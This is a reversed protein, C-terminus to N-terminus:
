STAAEARRRLDTTFVEDIRVSRHERDSAISAEVMALTWINDDASTEAVKGHVVADRFQNLLSVTGAKPYPLEDGKPVGVLKSPKFFRRGRPRWWVRKRDTWIDGNEGEVWLGYEYRNAIMTGAYQIPLGDGLTILAEAAGGKDYSSGPPNYSRAFMSVPQSRFLFRFSDFHHVAIEALFPHEAQKVWPGQTHSPQDRRDICVASAIQGAIGDELMRRVTREAAFFRYNEAVMLPRGAARAHAILSVAESLDLALPKEVMVALGANLAEHAHQAHLFTPSAILAADAPTDSLASALTTLFKGHGQGPCGRAEQLAKESTDVCAVSVFDAHQSVIDLWHRGRVGVGVHIIRIRV